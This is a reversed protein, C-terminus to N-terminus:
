KTTTSKDQFDRLFRGAMVIHLASMIVEKSSTKTIYGQVGHQLSEQITRPDESASVVVIPTAPSLNRIQNIAELGEMGPMTLDLLILDFDQHENLLQILDNFNTAEIISLDKDFRQLTIRTGDRVLEHDDALLIKM